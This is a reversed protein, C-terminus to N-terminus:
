FSDHVWVRVLVSVFFIDSNAKTILISSTLKDHLPLGSTIYYLTINNHLYTDYLTNYEM